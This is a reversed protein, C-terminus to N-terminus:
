CVVCSGCGRGGPPEPPTAPPPPATTATTATTTPVAPEAAALKALAPAASARPLQMELLAAVWSDREGPTAARLRVEGDALKLSFTAPEADALVEVGSM